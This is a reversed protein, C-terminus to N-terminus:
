IEFSINICKEAGCTVDDLQLPKKHDSLDHCPEAKQTDVSLAYFTVV